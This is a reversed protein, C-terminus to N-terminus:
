GFCSTVQCRKSAPLKTTFSLGLHEHYVIADYWTQKALPANWKEAYSSGDRLPGFCTGIEVEPRHKRIAEALPQCYKMYDWVNMLSRPDWYPEKGMEIAKVDLGLEDFRNFMEVVSEPTEEYVNLVYIPTLGFEKCLRAYGPLDYKRAIKCQQQSPPGALPVRHSFGM